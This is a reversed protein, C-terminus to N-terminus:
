VLDSWNDCARQTAAACDAYVAGLRSGAELYDATTQSVPHGRHLALAESRRSRWPLEGPRRSETSRFGATRRTRGAALTTNLGDPM